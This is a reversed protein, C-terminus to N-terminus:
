RVWLPVADMSGGRENGVVLWYSGPPLGSVWGQSGRGSRVPQGTGNFIKWFGASDVGELTFSDTAPNPYVSFGAEFVPEEMSLTTDLINTEVNNTYDSISANPIQVLYVDDRGNSYGNTSGLVWLRGDEDHLMASPVEDWPTGISPGGQWAGSVASWRSFLIEEGGLGLENTVSVTAFDTPSYWQVDCGAIDVGSGPLQELVLNGASDVVAFALRMGDATSVNMLAVANTSNVDIAVAATPDVWSSQHSWHVEGSAANVGQWRAASEEVLSSLVLLTDGQFAADVAVEEEPMSAVNGEHVLMWAGDMWIHGTAWVDGNGSIYSTGVSWMTDNHFMIRTPLDWADTGWTTQTLFAGNADLTYWGWDYANGVGGFRMGFVTLLGDGHEMADVPQLLPADEITAEWIVHAASDFRHLWGRPEDDTTSNTSSISLVDGNALEVLQQGRDDQQGGLVRVELTDTQASTVSVWAMFCTLALCAFARIRDM